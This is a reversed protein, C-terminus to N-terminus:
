LVRQRCSTTMLLAEAIMGFRGELKLLRLNSLFQFSSCLKVGFIDRLRNGTNCKVLLDVFPKFETGSLDLVELHPMRSSASLFKEACVSLLVSDLMILLSPHLRCMLLFCCWIMSTVHLEKLHFPVIDVFKLLEEMGDDFSDADICHFQCKWGDVVLERLTLLTHVLQRSLLKGDIKLGTVNFAYCRFMVNFVSEDDDPYFDVLGVSM